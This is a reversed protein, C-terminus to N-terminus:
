QELKKFNNISRDLDILFWKIMEIEGSPANLEMSKELNILWKKKLDLLENM